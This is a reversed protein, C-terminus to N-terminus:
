QLTDLIQVNQEDYDSDEGDVVPNEDSMALGPAELVFNM